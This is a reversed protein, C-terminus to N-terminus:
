RPKRPEGMVDTIHHSGEWSLLSPIVFTVGAGHGPPAAIVPIETGDATTFTLGETKKESNM